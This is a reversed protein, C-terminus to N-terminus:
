GGDAPSAYGQTTDQQTSPERSSITAQVITINDTGGDKIALRVLEQNQQELSADTTVVQLVQDHTVHRTLGDTCLLLRDGEHLEAKSLDPAVQNDGGISNYLCHSMPSADAQAQDLTGADVMLQAMSHDRTLQHMKGDRILYCRSDGAHVVYVWRAALYAMTLTTAMGQYNRDAQQASLLQKQSYELARKLEERFDDDCEKSLRYFWPITNLVYETVADVAITSAIEGGAHGGMGDAVLLLHGDLSSLFRGHEDAPISTHEVTMAKRLRAILFQDQNSKRKPGQDTVGHSDVRYM